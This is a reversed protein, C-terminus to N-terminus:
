IVVILLFNQFKTVCSQEMAFAFAMRVALRLGPAAM